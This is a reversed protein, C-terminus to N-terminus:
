PPLRAPFRMGTIECLVELLTPLGAIRNVAFVDRAIAEPADSTSRADNTTHRQLM